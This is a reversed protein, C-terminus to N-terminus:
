AASGQWTGHFGMSTAYDLSWIALPGQSLSLADFVLLETQKSSLNLATSVIYGAGEDDARPVFLPEEMIREPGM